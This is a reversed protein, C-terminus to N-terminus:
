GALGVVRVGGDDGKESLAKRKTVIAARTAKKGTLLEVAYGSRELEGALEQADREAYRLEGLEAHRYKNIGVVLALKRTKETEALGPGLLLLTPALSTLLVAILWRRLPLHPM